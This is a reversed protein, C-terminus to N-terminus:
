DTVREMKPKGNFLCLNYVSGHSVVTVSKEIVDTKKHKVM